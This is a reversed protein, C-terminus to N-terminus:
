RNQAHNRPSRERVFKQFAPDPLWKEMFESAPRLSRNMELVEDVDRQMKDMRMSFLKERDKSVGLEERLTRIDADHLKKKPVHRGIALFNVYKDLVRSSPKHGLRANIEDTSWGKNLLDCAMSSRLDKWTVWQGKPLCRAGASRVASTIFKLAQRYGFEFLLDDDGKDQLLMDLLQATEPHNTIESRSRRSRKLKEPSLNVLYEPEKTSPNLQRVFDKKQLTLLTHINEGIDFALWLLARHKSVRAVSVIKRFTEAEIFRVEKSESHGSFELVEKAIDFKGALKFPKSRFIKNYYSKKDGFPKGARNKIRGDELRDYVSKIDKKTLSKWPKNGFWLNANRLRRVYLLLTKASREDISPLGNIRKLKYEEWEIFERFLRRNEPCIKRDGLLMPKAADFQSKFSM